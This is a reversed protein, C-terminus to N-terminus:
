DYQEARIKAGSFLIIRSLNSFDIGEQISLFGLTSAYQFAASCTSSPWLLVTEDTAKEGSPLCTTEPDPSRVTRSQSAAV